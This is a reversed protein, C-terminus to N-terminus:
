PLALLSLEESRQNKTKTLIGYRELLPQSIFEPNPM